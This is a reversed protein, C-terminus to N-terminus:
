NPFSITKHFSHCNDCNSNDSYWHNDAINWNELLKSNFRQLFNRLLSLAIRCKLEPPPSLFLNKYLMYLPPPDVLIWRKRKREGYLRWEAGRRDSGEKARPTLADSQVAQLVSSIYCSTQEIYLNQRASASCFVYKQWISSAKGFTWSVQWVSVSWCPPVPCKWRTGRKKELLAPCTAAFACRASLTESVTHM